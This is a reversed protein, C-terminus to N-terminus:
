ARRYRSSRLFKTITITHSSVKNSNHHFVPNDRALRSWNIKLDNAICMTSVEELDFVYNEPDNTYPKQSPERNEVTIGRGINKIKQFRVDNSMVARHTAAM